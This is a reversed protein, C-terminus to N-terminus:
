VIVVPTLDIRRWHRSHPGLRRKIGHLQKIQSMLQIPSFHWLRFNEIGDFSVAIQCMAIGASSSDVANFATM